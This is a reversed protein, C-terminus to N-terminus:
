YTILLYGDHGNGGTTSVEGGGAGGGGSTGALGGNPLGGTGLIGGGTGGLRYASAIYFGSGGGGGNLNKQGGVPAGSAGGTAGDFHGKGGGGATLGLSVITSNGGDTGDAGAVGGAGGAGVVTTVTAGPTVAFVGAVLAGAGGGTGGISAGAGGGGGGGGVLEVMINYVGAPVTWNDTGATTVAHSGRAGPVLPALTANGGILGFLQVNTGDNYFVAISNTRLAQAGLASGDPLVISRAALGNPAITAAGTNNAICKVMFLRLATWSSPYPAPDLTVTLANAAGGATGYPINYSLNVWGAGGTDPNSLNNDVTSIYWIGPLTVSRIIADQPYGGIDTQFTSDYQLPAGGAQVWRMWATDVNLLGNFDQGFPPVGGGEIPLFNLPVFGDTFSAAGDQVGIQSPVPVTRIYSGGASDGFPIQYKTPIDTKLM